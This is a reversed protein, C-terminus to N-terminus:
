RAEGRGGREASGTRDRGETSTNHGTAAQWGGDCQLAESSRALAKSREAGKCAVGWFSPGRQCQGFRAWIYKAAALDKASTPVDRMLMKGGDPTNFTVSHDDNPKRSSALEFMQMMMQTQALADRARAEAGAAQRAAADARDNARDQEYRRQEIARVREFHALLMAMDSM